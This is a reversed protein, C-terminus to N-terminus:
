NFTIIAVFADILSQSLKTIEKLISMLVPSTTIQVLNTRKSGCIIALAYVHCGQGVQQWLESYRGLTLSIKVSNDIDSGM